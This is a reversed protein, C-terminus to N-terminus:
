ALIRVTVFAVMFVRGPQMVCIDMMLGIFSTM